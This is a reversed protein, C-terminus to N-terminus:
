RCVDAQTNTQCVLRRLGDILVQQQKLQEQQREIQAQQEKVANVLVATLRDYKVGEVEGAKNYTVLLPEVKEVDEAGFGLDKMGGDRWDFTIPHLRNVLNLGSSFPAINTKYRLSSSCNSIEFNGNRCLNVIGAAGFDFIRVKDGGTNRGLVITNSTTVVAGAGIATAFTLNGAGVNAGNGIITNAIGTTNAFGANVGFFSNNFGTTNRLGANVGVFTNSNGTTNDGGASKGIFSNGSGATNSAGTGSGVFSNGDGVTATGAGVGAFLNNIGAVSLVRSGNINYATTADFINATGAGGIKFDATQTAASQNQLYFNSGATPSRSDSLRPDTTLVYSSAPQGNLNQANDATGASVSHIAFPTSTVRQRPTLPTYSEGSSRRVRIELYRDAGIAFAAVGFDLPITFIGNTVQVSTNELTAGIQTGGSVADFLAFQMQYSGSAAMAGDTLRGQYTFVTTQALATAAFLTLLFFAAVTMKLRTQIFHKM